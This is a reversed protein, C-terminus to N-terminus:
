CEHRDCGSKVENRPYSINKEQRQQCGCVHPMCVSICVGGYLVPGLSIAWSKKLDSYTNTSLQSNDTYVFSAVSSGGGQCKCGLVALRCLSCGLGVLRKGYPKGLLGASTWTVPLLTHGGDSHACGWRIATKRYIHRDIRGKSSKPNWFVNYM